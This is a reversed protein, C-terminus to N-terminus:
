RRPVIGEALRPAFAALQGLIWQVRIGCCYSKYNPVHCYLQLSYKKAEKAALPHFTVLSEGISQSCFLHM